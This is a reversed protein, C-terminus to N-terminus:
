RRDASPGCSAGFEEQFASLQAQDNELQNKLTALRDKAQQILEPKAHQEILQRVIAEQSRIAKKDNPIDVNKLQDIGRKLTNCLPSLKPARKAKRKAKVM